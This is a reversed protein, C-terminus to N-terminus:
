FFLGYMSTATSTLNYLQDFPFYSMFLTEIDTIQPLIYPVYAYVVFQFNEKGYKAFARQLLLNSSRGALHDLMREYLNNASGIYRKDNIMNVFAYIGSKGSLKIGRYSLVKSRNDLDKFIHLPTPKNKKNKNFFLPSVEVFQLYPM